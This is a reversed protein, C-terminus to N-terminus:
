FRANYWLATCNLFMILCYLLLLLDIFVCSVLFVMFLVFLHTKLRSKGDAEDNIYSNLVPSVKSECYISLSNKYSIHALKMNLTYNIDNRYNRM